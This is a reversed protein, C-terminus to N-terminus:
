GLSNYTQGSDVAAAGRQDHPVAVAVTGTCTAGHNDTATFAIVYVRGDGTGSREARVSVAGTASITADPATDGDGLGNIPEDQTVATAKVTVTDGKDPDTVGSITVAVLKHNPPWLAPGATAAACNPPQNPPTVVINQATVVGELSFYASKGPALGGGFNVDGSNFTTQDVNSYSTGPGEYQTPGFPCGAPTGTFLGSCIGDGDFAFPQTTGTLSLKPITATSNNQVGVLTDDIGDYPGEGSETVTITGDANITLLLGCGTTDAGVAPCQTFPPTPTTTATAPVAFAVVAGLALLAGAAALRLRM